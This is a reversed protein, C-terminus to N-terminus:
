SLGEAMLHINLTKDASGGAIHDPTKRIPIHSFQYLPHIGSVHETCECLPYPANIPVNQKKPFCFVFLSRESKPFVFVFCICRQMQEVFCFLYALPPIFLRSFVSSPSIIHSSGHPPFLRANAKGRFVFCFIIIQLTATEVIPFVFLPCTKHTRQKRSMAGATIYQFYGLTRKGAVALHIIAVNCFDPPLRHCM